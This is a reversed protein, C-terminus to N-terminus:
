KTLVQCKCVGKCQKQAYDLGAMFGCVMGIANSLLMVMIMLEM